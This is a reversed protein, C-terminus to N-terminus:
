DILRDVASRMEENRVVLVNLGNIFNRNDVADKCIIQSIKNLQEKM